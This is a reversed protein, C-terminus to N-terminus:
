TVEAEMTQDNAQDDNPSFADPVFINGCDMLKAYITICQSDSCGASNTGTVCYGQFGAGGAVNVGYRLTLYDVRRDLPVIWRNLLEDPRM